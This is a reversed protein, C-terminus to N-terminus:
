IIEEKWGQERDTRFNTDCKAKIMKFNLVVRGMVTDHLWYGVSFIVLQQQKLLYTYIYKGMQILFLGM